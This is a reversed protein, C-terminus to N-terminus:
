TAPEGEGAGGLPQRRVSAPVGAHSDRFRILAAVEPNGGPWETLEIFDAPVLAGNADRLELERGLAAARAFVGERGSSTGGVATSHALAADALALSAARVTSSLSAYAPLRVVPAVVVPESAPQVDTIGIPVGRHTITYRM